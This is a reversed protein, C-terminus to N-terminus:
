VAIQFLQDTTGYVTEYDGRKEFGYKEYLGQEGSMLYMTHYGIEKAYRLAAHLMQESLRNGRYREDVFVFGIFPSFGSDAPLADTETLTCFGALADQEAAIIVREWPQFANGRMKEALFKGAKWSCNQAFAATKEWLPHGQQILQIVM